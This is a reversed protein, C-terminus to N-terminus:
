DPKAKKPKEALETKFLWDGLMKGSCISVIVEIPGLMWFINRLIRKWLKAPEKTKSDLITIGAAHKGVSGNKPIDRFVMYLMAVLSIILARVMLQMEDVNETVFIYRVLYEFFLYDAILGAIVFDLMFSGCKKSFM